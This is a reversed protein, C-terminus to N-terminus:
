GRKFQLFTALVAISGKRVTNIQYQFKQFVISTSSEGRVKQSEHAM